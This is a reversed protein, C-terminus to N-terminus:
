IFVIAFEALILEKVEEYSGKITVGAAKVHGGGGLKSAIAGVNVSSTSSARMGVEIADRVKNSVKFFAIAEIGKVTFMQAYYEDSARSNDGFKSADSLKEHSVALRGDFFLETRDIVASLFRVTDFSKGGSIKAYEISPNVGTNVLDAIIEFCESSKENLFKFFGSDTAFGRFILQATERNIEVNLTKYLKYVLLTTSPSESVIYHYEDASFGNSHHDIVVTTFVNEFFDAYMGLRDFTSCDVMIGLTDKNLYNKPIECSLVNKFEEIEPRSFSGENVLIYEKKLAKLLLGMAMVSNACDGDPNLHGCVVARKCNKIADTLQKPISSFISM